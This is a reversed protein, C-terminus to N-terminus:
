KPYLKIPISFFLQSLVLSHSKLSFWIATIANWSLVSSDKFSLWCLLPLGSLSFVAMVLFDSVKVNVQGTHLYRWIKNVTNVLSSFNLRWFSRIYACAELFGRSFFDYPLFLCDDLKSLSWTPQQTHRFLQLKQSFFTFM